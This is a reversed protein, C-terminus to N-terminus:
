HARRRPHPRVLPWVIFFLRVEGVRVALGNLATMKAATTAVLAVRGATTAAFVVRRSPKMDGGFSFWGDIHTNLSPTSEGRSTIVYSRSSNVFTPMDSNMIMPFPAAIVAAFGYPSGASLPFICPARASRSRQARCSAFRNPSPTHIM